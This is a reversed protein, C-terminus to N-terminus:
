VDAQSWDTLNLKGQDGLDYIRCSKPRRTSLELTKFNFILLTYQHNIYSVGQDRSPPPTVAEPM